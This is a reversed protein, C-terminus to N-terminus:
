LIVFDDVIDTEKSMISYKIQDLDFTLMDDPPQMFDPDAEESLIIDLHPCSDSRRCVQSHETDLPTVAGTKERETQTEAKVFVNKLPSKSIDTQTERDQFDYQILPCTVEAGGQEKDSLGSDQGLEQGLEQTNEAITNHIRVVNSVSKRLLNRWKSGESALRELSFTGLVEHDGSNNNELKQLCELLKNLKEWFDVDFLDQGSQCQVSKDLPNDEEVGEVEEVTKMVDCCTPIEESNQSDFSPMDFKVMRSPSNNNNLEEKQLSQFLDLNPLEINSVKKLIGKGNHSAGPEGSEAESDSPIDISPIPTLKKTLM